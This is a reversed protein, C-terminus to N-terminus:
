FKKARQNFPDPSVWAFSEYQAFNLEANYDSEGKMTSGYGYTLVAMISLAIVEWSNLFM